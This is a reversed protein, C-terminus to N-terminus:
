RGNNWYERPTLCPPNHEYGVIPPLPRLDFMERQDEFSVWNGGHLRRAPVEQGAADLTWSILRGSVDDVQLSVEVRDDGAVNAEFIREAPGDAHVNVIMEAYNPPWFCLYWEPHRPDAEAGRRPTERLCEDTIFGLKPRIAFVVRPHDGRTPLNELVDRRDWPVVGNLGLFVLLGAGKLWRCLGVGGDQWIQYLVEGRTDYIRLLSASAPSGAICTVIELGPSQEEPFIDECALVRFGFAASSLGRQDRLEPLLEADTLRRTWVPDRPAAVDYACLTNRLDGDRPGTYSILAVQDGGYAPPREILRAYSIENGNDPRWAWLTTGSRSLLRAEFGNYEVRNGSEDVVVVGFPQRNFWWISAYTSVVTSVAVAACAAATVWVPHRLSWRVARTWLTPPRAEVPEGALWHRIDRLLDAVSSYREAPKKALAKLLLRELDGRVRVPPDAPQCTSLDAPAGDSTAPALPEPSPHPPGDAGRGASHGGWGEARGGRGGAQGGRGTGRAGRGAGWQSPATPPQECIIRAAAVISTGSVEYPLRGCLLEYLTVGLAYVDSRTDIEEAAGSVQEPSMYQLTGVLQGTETVLTTLALDADTARAVGFDIVKVGGEGDVLINAPKLDRHIVGRQHAHQVAECVQAFLELRARESLANAAAFMTIPRADPVFEMVFYPLRLRWSSPAEAADGSGPALPVDATGAAIVEAINPHRLRALYESEYEFRRLAASGLLGPRLVKLAVRRRPREQEALYVTGMGGAAIPRTVRCGGITRGVLPDDGAPTEPPSRGDRLSEPAPTAPPRLFAEDQAAHHALLSEVAARLAADDGCCEQVRLARLAPPLDCVEGFVEEVRRLDTVGSGTQDDVSAPL